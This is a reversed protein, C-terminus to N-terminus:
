LIRISRWRTPRLIHYERRFVNFHTDVNLTGRRLGWSFELRTLQM